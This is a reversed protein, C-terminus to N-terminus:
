SLALPSFTRTMGNLEKIEGDAFVLLFHSESGSIRREFIQRSWLKVISMSNM